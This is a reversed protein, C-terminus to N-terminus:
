PGRVRVRAHAERGESDVVSIRYFGPGAPRWV